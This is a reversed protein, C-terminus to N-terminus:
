AGSGQTLGCVALYMAGTTWVQDTRDVTMAYMQNDVSAVLWGLGPVRRYLKASCAQVAHERMLREIRRRGTREGQRRLEAHVGPSGYTERRAGHVERVREILRADEHVRESLPRDCWAYYGSSSAGFLRCLRRM